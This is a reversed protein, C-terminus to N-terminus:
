RSVAVETIRRNAKLQQGHAMKPYMHGPHADKIGPEDKVQFIYDFECGAEEINSVKWQGEALAFTWITEKDKFKRHGEVSAGTGCQVLYDQMNATISVVLV